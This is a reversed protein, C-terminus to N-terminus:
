ASPPTALAAWRRAQERVQELFLAICEATLDTDELLPLAPFRQRLQRAFVGSGKPDLIQQQAPDYVPTSDLGCSPSRSQLIFGCLQPYSNAFAQAVTHLRDTVDRHPADRGVARIGDTTHILNVPPRPIGMGAVAEPCFPLLRCHPAIQEAVLTSFKERGDYRVRQGALCASIGVLPRLDHDAPTMM